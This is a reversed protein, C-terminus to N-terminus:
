ASPSKRLAAYLERTEASPTIGLQDQLLEALGHYHRLARAREGMDAYCRILERHAAELLSDHAIAREYTRVAQPFRGARAYHRGLAILVQEFATRLETRRLDIWQEGPLDALFDGQYAEVAAVLAPLAAPEPSHIRALGAELVGVDWAHPRDRNFAYRGHRYTIWAPDGLARRLHHLSAHFSNRLTAPSSWPWLAAGIQDKTSEAHSLLFYLLERPKAYTWELPAGDRCVRAAGLAQIRLEAPAETVVVPTRAPSEITASRGASWEEAFREPGRQAQAPEGQRLAIEGLHHRARAIEAPDGLATWWRLSEEHLARASAYDGRDRAVDGLVRMATAMGHQDELDQALALGARCREAARDHDGARHALLGTAVLSRARLTAPADETDCWTLAARLDDEAPREGREVSGVVHAAHLARAAAEGGRERLRAAAYQRIPELLQYRVRPGGPIPEVLSRDVLETLVDLPRGAGRHMAEVADLDFSGAFVSLDAFLRREPEALLEFSWDMTARLTRHRPVATRGGGVLVPLADDLRDALQRVSLVKVRAAALEIALPLGALRRCIATITTLDEPGAAFHPVASRARDLFLRVAESESGDAPLPPLAWTVEGAVGLPRQSTTLVRLNPHAALLKEVLEAVPDGLHECNDCILLMSEATETLDPAKGVDTVEALPVWRVGGPFRTALRHALALALRSKGAGGPGTVSVLRAHGLLATLEDLETERGVFNSLPVPLGARGSEALTKRAVPYSYEATSLQIM